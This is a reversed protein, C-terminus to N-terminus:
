LLWRLLNLSSSAIFIAFFIWSFKLRLHCCFHEFFCDLSLGHQFLKLQNWSFSNKCRIMGVLFLDDVKKYPAGSKIISTSSYQVDKSSFIWDLRKFEAGYDGDLTVSYQIALHQRRFIQFSLLRLSVKWSPQDLYNCSFNASIESAAIANQNSEFDM